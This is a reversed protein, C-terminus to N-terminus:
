TEVDPSKPGATIHSVRRNAILITRDMYVNLRAYVSVSSAM